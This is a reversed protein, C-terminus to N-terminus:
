NSVSCVLSKIERTVECFDFFNGEVFELELAYVGNTEYVYGKYKLADLYTNAVAKIQFYENSQELNFGKRLGHSSVVSLLEKPNMSSHIINSRFMHFCNVLKLKRLDMSWSEAFGDRYENSIRIDQRKANTAKNIEEQRRAEIEIKLEEITSTNGSLWSHNIVDNFCARNEIEPEIMKEILNKVQDSLLEKRDFNKWFLKKDRLFLRMHVDSPSISFFPLHSTKLYFLIVGLSFIDSLVGDYTKMKAVEPALYKKSVVESHSSESIRETYTLGSLKIQLDKSFLVNKASITRHCYDSIHLDQVASLISKFLYKVSDDSLPTLGDTIDCLNGFEMFEVIFYKCFYEGANKKIYTGSQSVEVPRIATELNLSQLIQVEKDFFQYFEPVKFIHAVYYLDNNRCKVLKIKSHTGNSLLKLVQYDGLLSYTDTM